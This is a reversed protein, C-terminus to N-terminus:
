GFMPHRFQENWCRGVRRLRISLRGSFSVAMQRM